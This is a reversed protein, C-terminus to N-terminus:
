AVLAVIFWDSIMLRITSYRKGAQSAATTTTPKMTTMLARDPHHRRPANGSWKLHLGHLLRIQHLQGGMVFWLRSVDM